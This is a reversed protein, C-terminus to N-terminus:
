VMKEGPIRASQWQLGGNDQTPLAPFFRKRESARFGTDASGTKIGCVGILGPKVSPVSSLGLLDVHLTNCLVLTINNM